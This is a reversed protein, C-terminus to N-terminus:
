NGARHKQIEVLEDIVAALMLERTETNIPIKHRYLSSQVIVNLMPHVILQKAVQKGAEKIRGENSM